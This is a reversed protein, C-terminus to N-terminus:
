YPLVSIYNCTSMVPGLEFTSGRTIGFGIWEIKQTGNLFRLSEYCLSGCACVVVKRTRRWDIKM